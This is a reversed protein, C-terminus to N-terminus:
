GGPMLTSEGSTNWHEPRLLPRLTAASAAQQKEAQEPALAAEINGKWINIISRLEDRNEHFKQHKACRIEAQQCWYATAAAGNSQYGTHERFAVAFSAMLSIDHIRLWATEANDMYSRRFLTYKRKTM